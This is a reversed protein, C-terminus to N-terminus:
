RYSYECSFLCKLCQLTLLTSFIELIFSLLLVGVYFAVSKKPEQKSIEINWVYKVFDLDWLLPWNELYDSSLKYKGLDRPGGPIKKKLNTGVKHGTSNPKSYCCPTRRASKSGLIFCRASRPGRRVSGAGGRASGPDGSSCRRVRSSFCLLGFGCALNTSFHTAGHHKKLESLWPFTLECFGCKFFQVPIVATPLYVPTMPLSSIESCFTDPWLQHNRDPLYLVCLTFPEALLISINTVWNNLWSSIYDAM